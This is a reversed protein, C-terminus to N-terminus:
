YQYYCDSDSYGCRCQDKPCDDCEDCPCKCGNADHCENCYKKQEKEESTSTYFKLLKMFEPPIYKDKTRQQKYYLCLVDWIVNKTRKRRLEDYIGDIKYAQVFYDFEDPNTGKNDIETAIRHLEDYIEKDTLENVNLVLADVAALCANAM